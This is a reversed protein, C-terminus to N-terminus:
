QSEELPGRIAEVQATGDPAIDRVIDMFSMTALRRARKLLLPVPSSPEHQEYYACILDLTRQVDARSAIAGAIRPAAAQQTVAGAGSGALGTDVVMEHDGREDIERELERSRAAARAQVLRHMQEILSALEELSLAQYTGVQDTVWSEIARLDAITSALDAVTAELQALDCNAFAADIKSVDVNAAQGAVSPDGAAVALEKLGFSGLAPVHVLPINRLYLLMGQRDCLGRLVNLRTTPDGDEEDLGPHITPWYRELLQRLISMGSALGPLGLSRLAAKVLIAAIRLDKTRSHLAIAQQLISSWPPEETPADPGVLRERAPPDAQRTLSLFATDYELDDGCPSEASIPELISETQIVAIAM